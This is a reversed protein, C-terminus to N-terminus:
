YNLGFAWLPIVNGHGYEIDDKVVYGQTAERIQKQGKSKGGVEFTHDGIQFDSIPSSTVEQNVRMQNFFFTERVTGVDPASDSLTNLINTNDLYVKEVKGLGNISTSVERLQAIMGAKEIFLLYDELNNRSVEIQSALKTMSPKFPALTSILALLKRLKRSTAATMNAFQPIDVELTRNIVQGLEISFDPDQGFPYYGSVLYEKFYVLPHDVGPIVSKHALIDELSLAPTEIEYRMALFERFSLGQMSYKPARRSLDAEGREIDLISSGTFYVHLDPFADYMAKLEHSWGSYKHVEDIYFYTGGNKNFTEATDFLTHDSFYLNDASVFLTHELQGAHKIHQLFLTTKGVGRPGVLGLMRNDWNIRDYVYRHFNSTTSALLRHMTEYLRDM